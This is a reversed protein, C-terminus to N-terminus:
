GDQGEPKKHFITSHTAEFAATFEDPHDVEELCILDSLVNSKLHEIHKSFRHEWTLYAPNVAPFGM